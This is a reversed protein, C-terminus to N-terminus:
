SFIRQRCEEVESACARKCVGCDPAGPTPVPPLPPVPASIVSLRCKALADACALCSSLHRAQAPTAEAAGSAIRFLEVPGVHSTDVSATVTRTATAM